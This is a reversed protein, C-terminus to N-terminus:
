RPNRRAVEAYTERSAFALFWICYPLRTADLDPTIRSADDSMIFRAAIADDFFNRNEDPQLSWWKAFIPNHYIGRAICYIENDIMRPRRLRVYRNVDGYYAAM